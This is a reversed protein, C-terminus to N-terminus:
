LQFDMLGSVSNARSRPWSKCDELAIHVGGVRTNTAIVDPTMHPIVGRSSIAMFDPTELDKRGQVCLRGLRPSIVNPDVHSLIEFFIRKAADSGMSSSDEDPFSLPFQHFPFGRNQLFRQTIQLGAVGLNSPPNRSHKSKTNSGGDVHRKTM